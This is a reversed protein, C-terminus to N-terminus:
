LFEIKENSDMGFSPNENLYSSHVLALELLSNNRFSLGISKQLQLIDSL